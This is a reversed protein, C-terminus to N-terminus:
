SGPIVRADLLGRAICWFCISVTPVVLPLNDRMSSERRDRDCLDLDLRIVPANRPSWPGSILSEKFPIFQADRATRCFYKEVIAGLRWYSSWPCAVPFRIGKQGESVTWTFVYIVDLCNTLSSTPTCEISGSYTQANFGNFNMNKTKQM